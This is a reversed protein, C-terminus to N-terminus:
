GWTCDKVVSAVGHVGVLDFGKRGEGILKHLAGVSIHLLGVGAAKIGFIQLGVGLLEGGRQLGVGIDVFGHVALEGELHEGVDVVDEFHEVLGLAGVRLENLDRHRNLVGRAQEASHMVELRAERALGGAREATGRRGVIMTISAQASKQTASIGPMAAAQCGRGSGLVASRSSQSGSSSGSCRWTSSGPAEVRTLAGRFATTRRCNSGGSSALARRTSSRTAASSPRVVADKGRSGKTSSPPSQSKTVLTECLGVSRMPRSLRAPWLM